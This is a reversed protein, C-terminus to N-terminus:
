GGLRGIVQTVVRASADGDDGCGDSSLCQLQSLMDSLYGSATKSPNLFELVLGEEGDDRDIRADLVLPSEQLSLSM